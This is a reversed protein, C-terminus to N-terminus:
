ETGSQPHTDYAASYTQLQDISFHHLLLHIRSTNGLFLFFAPTQCLPLLYTGQRKFHNVFKKVSAPM